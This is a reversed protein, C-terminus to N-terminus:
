EQRGHKMVEKYDDNLKKVTNCAMTWLLLPSMRKDYEFEFIDLLIMSIEKTAEDNGAVWDQSPKKRDIM